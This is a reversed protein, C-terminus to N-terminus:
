GKIKNERNAWFCKWIISICSM